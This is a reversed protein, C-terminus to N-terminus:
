RRSGTKRSEVRGKEPQKRQRPRLSWNIADSAPVGGPARGARGRDGTRRHCLGHHAGHGGSSEHDRRVPRCVGSRHRAGGDLHDFGGPTRGRSAPGDGLFGAMGIANQIIIFVASILLFILLKAGGKVLMRADAGLGVTSFFMLLLSDKMSLNFAFGIHFLGDMLALAVAVLGGGIVPAPISFRKLLAVRGVLAQGIFFVAITALLTFLLNLEIPKM